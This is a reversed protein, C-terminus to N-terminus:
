YIKNFLQNFLDDDELFLVNKDILDSKKRKKWADPLMAYKTFSLIFSNLKINLGTRTTLGNEIDKIEKYLNIKEDDPDVMVLGKPDIFSITQETGKITWLIFDPYFNKTEFFGVGKRSPNRLLYVRDFKQKTDNDKLYEDLRNVFLKESEVLQIPSIKVFDLDKINKYLIPNFLHVNLVFFEFVNTTMKYGFVTNKEYISETDMSNKRIFVKLKNVFDLVDKVLSNAKVSVTFVYEKPIFSDDGESIPEYELNEQYWHYKEFNYVKDLYLKLLQIAYEQIKFIKSITDNMDIQLIENKCLIGYKSSLLVNKLDDKSFYINSYRKLSKYKLLEIFVEDFDIMEIINTNLVNEKLSTTAVQKFYEQSELMDIHTSLDIKVQPIKQQLGIVNVSDVFREKSEAITPVYLFIKPINAKIKLDIQVYEEIGEEKLTERFIAMYNANLGYINLTELIRLNDPIKIGSPILNEQELAYSRKLLNDFGRLRVGRGFLQIIQTGESKGINLLGMASIRYSNWGEIFKKSGILFNIPSGVDEIKRFLSKDFNSKPGIKFHRDEAESEILKLFSKTDGIDIVGFYDSDFRLGIEGQANKLEIFQLTNSTKVHFIVNLIDEYIEEFTKTKSSILERIYPFKDRFIPEDNSDTLNSHGNIINKLLNLFSNRENVFRALFRVVQIIDSENKKGTVSSGVFIMLPNELNFLMISDRYNNFYTKQEYLSLLSGAFYEDGYEDDNQLNLISYDKGFGDEYFYKYRYDFIICSAYENFTDDQDTIQGFTASYEFTFGNKGTLTKRNNRWTKAETSNGKHGEDVFVINNEGFSEVPITKGDQSSTENRIKTIEILQVPNETEWDELVRQALFKRNEISSLDLENAHQFTLSENPTILLLNDYKETSYKQIQLINIHMIITKGSGTASWFALKRLLKKDPFPYEGVKNKDTNLNLVFDAFEKYFSDFQNFYKDLYIETFLIAIYQFHKLVIQPDRKMNIYKLYEQINDDYLDLKEKISESLNLTELVETYFLKNRGSIGERVNKFLERFDDINKQGFLSCIYRNLILHNQLNKKIRKM